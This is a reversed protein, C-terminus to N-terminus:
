QRRRNRIRQPPTTASPTHAQNSGPVCWGDFCSVAVAFADMAASARRCASGDAALPGAHGTGLLMGATYGVAPVLEGLGVVDGLEVVDGLGVVEALGAAEALGVVFAVAVVALVAWWGLGVADADREPALAPAHAGALM